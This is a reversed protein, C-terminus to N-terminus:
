PHLPRAEAGRIRGTTFFSGSWNQLNILSNWIM